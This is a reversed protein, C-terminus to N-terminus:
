ASQPWCPNRDLYARAAHEADQRTLYSDTIWLVTEGAADLIVAAYGDESAQVEITPPM